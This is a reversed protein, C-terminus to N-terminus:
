QGTQLKGLTSEIEERKEKLIQIAIRRALDVEVSLPLDSDKMKEIESQIKEVPMKDAFLRKVKGSQPLEAEIHSLAIDFAQGSTTIETQQIEQLAGLVEDNKVEEAFALLEDYSLQYKNMTEPLKRIESNVAERTEEIKKHYKKPVYAPIEGTSITNSVMRPVYLTYGLYGIGALVIVIILLIKLVKM